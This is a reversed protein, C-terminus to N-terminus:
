KKPKTPYKSPKHGVSHFQTNRQPQELIYVRTCAHTSLHKMQTWSKAVGHVTAHWAGRDRPNELCSHRLPNGHGGGPSRRSGPILGADGASHASEKGVSGGPFGQLSQYSPSVFTNSYVQLWKDLGQDKYLQGCIQRIPPCAPPGRTDKGQFPLLMCVHFTHSDRAELLM